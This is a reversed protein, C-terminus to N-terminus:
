LDHYIFNLKVHFSYMEQNASLRYKEIRMEEIRSLFQFAFEFM